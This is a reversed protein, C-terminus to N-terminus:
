RSQDQVLGDAARDQLFTLSEIWAQVPGSGVNRRGSKGMVRTETSGEDNRERGWREDVESREILPSVKSAAEKEERQRKVIDDVSLPAKGIAM